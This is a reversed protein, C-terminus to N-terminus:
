QTSRGALFKELARESIRWPGRKRRENAPRRGVDIAELQESLIWGYVVRVSVRVRAAVETPRLLAGDGNPPCGSM